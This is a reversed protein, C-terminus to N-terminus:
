RCRLRACHGRFAHVHACATRNGAQRQCRRIATEPSATRLSASITVDGGTRFRRTRQFLGLPDGSRLEIPSTPFVGRRVAIARFSWGTAGRRKLAVVTTGNHGPIHALDHSEVWLKPFQSRSRLEFTDLLVEGVQLKEPTVSRSLSLGSLSARAWLWSTILLAFFGMALQSLLRWDSVGGAIAFGIILAVLGVGRSTM